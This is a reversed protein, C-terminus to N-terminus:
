SNQELNREVVILTLTRLEGRVGTSHEDAVFHTEALRDLRQCCRLNQGSIAADFPHQNNAGRRELVLPFRSIAFNV